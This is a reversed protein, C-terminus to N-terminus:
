RRARWLRIARWVYALVLAALILKTAPDILHAVRDHNAKLLYGALTLLVVWVFSGLATVALFLGLPMAALGAPISILTRVGPVLRGLFVALVGRRVFWAMAREAEDRSVTLWFGYRDILALLREAGFFRSVGYWVVAGAVSGATGAGVVTWFRLRGAAAEFGAFPMILESPIPPFLNELLMLLAIGWAGGATITDRIFDDMAPLM